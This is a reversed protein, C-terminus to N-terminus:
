YSVRLFCALFNGFWTVQYIRFCFFIGPVSYCSFGRNLSNGISPIGWVIERMICCWKIIFLNLSKTKIAFKALEWTICSLSSRQNKIETCFSFSWDRPFINQYLVCYFRKLFYWCTNKTINLECSGTSWVGERWHFATGERWWHCIPLPHQGWNPFWLSAVIWFFHILYLEQENKLMTFSKSCHPIYMSWTLDNWAM